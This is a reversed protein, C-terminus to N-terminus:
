RYHDAPKGRFEPHIGCIGDIRPDRNKAKLLNTFGLIANMPTRIEHSMNAMFNEKILSVERVKKESADLEHIL